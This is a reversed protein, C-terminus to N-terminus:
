NLLMEDKLVKVLCTQVYILLYACIKKNKKNKKLGCQLKQHPDMRIWEQKGRGRDLQGGGWPVRCCYHERGM